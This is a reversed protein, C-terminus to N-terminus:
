PLSLRRSAVCSTLLGCPHWRPGDPECARTLIIHSLAHGASLVVKPVYFTRLLAATLLQAYTGPLHSFNQATMKSANVGELKKGSVRSLYESETTVGECGWLILSQSQLPPPSSAHEQNASSSLSIGPPSLSSM